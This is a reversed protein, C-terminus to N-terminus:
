IWVAVRREAGCAQCRARRRIDMPTADSGCRDFAERASLTRQHGCGECRLKLTRDASLSRHLTQFMTM